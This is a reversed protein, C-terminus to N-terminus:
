GRIKKPLLWKTLVIYGFPCYSKLDKLYIQTKILIQEDYEAM